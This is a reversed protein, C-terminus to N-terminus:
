VQSKSAHFKRYAWVFGLSLHYNNINFLLWGAKELKFLLLQFKNQTAKKLTKLRIM